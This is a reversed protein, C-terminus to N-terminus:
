VRLDTRKKKNESWLIFETNERLNILCLDRERQLLFICLIHLVECHKNNINNLNYFVFYFDKFNGFKTKKM